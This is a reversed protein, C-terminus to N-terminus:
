KNLPFTSLNSVQRAMENGEQLQLPMLHAIFNDWKLAMIDAIRHKTKLISFPKSCKFHYHITNM